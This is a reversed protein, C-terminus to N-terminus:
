DASEDRGGAGLSSTPAPERPLLVGVVHPSHMFRVSSWLDANLQGAFYKSLLFCLVRLCVLITFLVKHMHHLSFIFDCTGGGTLLCM